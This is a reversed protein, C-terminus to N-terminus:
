ASLREDEVLDAQADDIALVDHLGPGRALPGGRDVEADVDELSAALADALAVDRVHEAEVVGDLAVHLELLAQRAALPLPGRQIMRAVLRAAEFVPALQEVAGLLRERDQHAISAALEIEDDEGRVARMHRGRIESLEDDTLLAM